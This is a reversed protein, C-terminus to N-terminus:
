ISGEAQSGPNFLWLRCIGCESPINSCRASEIEDWPRVSKVTSAVNWPTDSHHLCQEWLDHPWSCWQTTPGSSIYYQPRPYRRDRQYCCLSEWLIRLPYDTKSQVAMPRRSFSFKFNLQCCLTTNNNWTSTLLDNFKLATETIDLRFLTLRIVLWLRKM